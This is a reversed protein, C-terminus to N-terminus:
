HLILIFNKSTAFNSYLFITLFGDNQTEWLYRIPNSEFRPAKKQAESPNAYGYDIYNMIGDFYKSQTVGREGSHGGEIEVYEGNLFGRLCIWAHGVDSNKSGDSPHKTLTKFFSRNDTYDLHRANVLVVLFYPSPKFITTPSRPQELYAYFERYDESSPRYCATLLFLLILCATPM